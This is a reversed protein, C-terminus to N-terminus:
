WKSCLEHVTRHTGELEGYGRVDSAKQFHVRMVNKVDCPQMAVKLFPYWSVMHMWPPAVNRTAQVWLLGQDDQNKM